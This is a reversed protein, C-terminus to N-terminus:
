KVLARGIVNRVPIFGYDRSDISVEANDGIALIYGEPIKSVSHMKYYQVPTLPYIKTGVGLTYSSNEYYELPCGSLAVCRKIVMKNEYMYIVVDGEKPSAWRFLLSDGFPKVLGYSIKSVALIKGDQISPEMSTGKVKVLDLFFFKTILGIFIGFLITLIQM